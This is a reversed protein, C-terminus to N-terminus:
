VWMVASGIMPHTRNYPSQWRKTKQRNQTQCRIHRIPWDDTIHPNNGRSGYHSIVAIGGFEDSSGYIVNRGGPRSEAFSDITRIFMARSAVKPKPFVGSYRVRFAESNRAPRGRVKPDPRGTRDIPPDTKRPHCIKSTASTVPLHQKDQGARLRRGHHPALDVLEHPVPRVSRIGYNRKGTQPIALRLCDGRTLRPRNQSRARFSFRDPLRKFNVRWVSTSKWHAVPQQGTSM